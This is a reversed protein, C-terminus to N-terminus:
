VSSLLVAIYVASPKCGLTLQMPIQLLGPARGSPIVDGNQVMSHSCCSCVKKLAQLLHSNRGVGQSCPEAVGTAGTVAGM